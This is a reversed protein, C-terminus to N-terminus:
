VLQILYTDTIAQFSKHDWWAPCALAVEMPAPLTCSFSGEPWSNLTELTTNDPVFKTYRVAQGWGVAIDSNGGTIRRLFGILTKQPVIEWWVNLLVCVGKVAAARVSPAEDM